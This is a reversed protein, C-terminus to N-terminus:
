VATRDNQFGHLFLSKWRFHFFRLHFLFRKSETIQGRGFKTMVGQGAKLPIIADEELFGNCLFGDFELRVQYSRFGDSDM